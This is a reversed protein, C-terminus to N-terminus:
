GYPTDGQVYLAYGISFPISVPSILFAFWAISGDDDYAAYSVGAGVSYAIFLYLMILSDM